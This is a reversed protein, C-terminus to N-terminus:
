GRRGREIKLQGHELLWVQDAHELVSLRHTVLIRTKHQWAGCILLEILRKETEVDVASLCDDLLVIGRQGTHIGQYHARAMGVRQRQGGSLNVGREGIEAALGGDINEGGPDFDALQLSALIGHDLDEAAGYFFAVNERLSASMVFGDQPVYIFHSRVEERSVTTLDTGAATYEVFTAPNDRLLSHLLQTKGVGVEGRIAIFEGASVSFSVDQLVKRGALTLNLGQVTLSEGMADPSSERPSERLPHSHQSRHEETLLAFFKELRRCSTHGDLFMVLTWPTSRIPKAMFVGFVWMLAFIDGATAAGQKHNILVVIGVANIILPAVQAISNLVSGNTVMGLRNETEEIRKKFIRREIVDTWDLIRIIRMNQLWENVIGLREGALRKFASFFRSQRWSLLLLLTMCALTVLSVIPLPMGLMHSVFFPAAILPIVAGVAAGFFDELLSSAASVDQAYLNVIEGVTRSGRSESTLNLTHNYVADALTGHVLSAERACIVRVLLSFAQAILMAAFAFYIAKVVPSSFDSLITLGPQAPFAVQGGTLADVFIKQYWPALLGIVAGAAALAFITIRSSLRFSLVQKTLGTSLAAPPRGGLIHSTQAQRMASRALRDLLGRLGHPLAFQRSSM